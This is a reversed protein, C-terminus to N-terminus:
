ESKIRALTGGEASLASMGDTLDLAFRWENPQLACGSDNTLEFM